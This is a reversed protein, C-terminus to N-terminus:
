GEGPQSGATWTTVRRYLQHPRDSDYLSVVVHARKEPRRTVPVEIVREEDPDLALHYRRPKGNVGIRAELRYHQRGQEASILGVKLAPDAANKSPLMWLATYGVAKSAPLPTYAFVLTGVVLVAALVVCAVDVGRLRPRTWGSPRGDPRGRRLAAARATALVVLVLLLAWTVTRIGGPLFDLVIGGLCLLSLGCLLTL